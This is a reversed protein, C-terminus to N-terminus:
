LGVIQLNHRISAIHYNGQILPGWYVIARVPVELFIGGIKPLGWSGFFHWYSGCSSGSFPVCLMTAPM